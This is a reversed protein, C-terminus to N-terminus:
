VLGFGFELSAISRLALEQSPFPSIKREEGETVLIGTGGLAM